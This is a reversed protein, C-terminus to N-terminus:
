ATFAVIGIGPHQPSEVMIRLRIKRQLSPVTLDETVSTVAAFQRLMFLRRIMTVTAVPSIINMATPKSAVAITTVTRISKFVGDNTSRYGSLAIIFVVCRFLNRSLWAATQGYM